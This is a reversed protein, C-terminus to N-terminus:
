PCCNRLQLGSFCEIGIIGFSYYLLFIVLAVRHLFLAKLKKEKIKAYSSKSTMLLYNTDSCTALHCVVWELVSRKFTRATFPIQLGCCSKMHFLREKHFLNTRNPRTYKYYHYDCSKHRAGTDPMYNTDTTAYPRLHHKEPTAEFVLCEFVFVSARLM